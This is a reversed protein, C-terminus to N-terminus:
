KQIFVKKHAHRAIKILKEVLIALWTMSDEAKGRKREIAEEQGFPVVVGDGADGDELSPVSQAIKKGKDDTLDKPQTQVVSVGQEALREAVDEGIQEPIVQVEPQQQSEQEITAM